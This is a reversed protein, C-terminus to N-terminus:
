TSTYIFEQRMYRIDEPIPIDLFIYTVNLVDHLFGLSMNLKRLYFAKKVEEDLTSMKAGTWHTFANLIRWNKYYPADKLNFLKLALESAAVSRNKFEIQRRDTILGPLARWDRKQLNRLYEPANKDILEIFNTKSAQEIELSPNLLNSVLKMYSDKTLLDPYDESVNLYKKAKMQYFRKVLNEAKVTNDLYISYLWLIDVNVELSSRMLINICDLDFHSLQLISQLIDLMRILSDKFFSSLYKNVNGKKEFIRNVQYVEESIRV